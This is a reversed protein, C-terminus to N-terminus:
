NEEAIDQIYRDPPPLQNSYKSQADIYKTLVEARAQVIRQPSFRDFEFEIRRKSFTIRVSRVGFVAAAGFTVVTAVTIACIGIVPLSTFRLWASHLFNEISQLFSSSKSSSPARPAAAEPASTPEELAFITQPGAVGDVRLGMKRQFDEVAQFTQMGYFGDIQLYPNIHDDDLQQQLQKVCTGSSNIHLPPCSAYGSISAADAPMAALCILFIIFFLGPLLSVASLSIGNFWFGRVKGTMSVDGARLYPVREPREGSAGNASNMSDDFFKKFAGM